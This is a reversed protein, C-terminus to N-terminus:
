SKATTEFAGRRRDDSFGGGGDEEYEDVDDDDDYLSKTAFNTESFDEQGYVLYMIPRIAGAPMHNAEGRHVVKYDYMLVSGAEAIGKTFASGPLKTPLGHELLFEQRDLHTGSWFTTFGTTEDLDILPIFCCVAHYPELAAPGDAHWQQTSTCNGGTSVVVGMRHLKFNSPLISALAPLWPADTTAYMKFADLSALSILDIDYRGKDRQMVEKFKVIPMGSVASLVDNVHSLVAARTQALIQEPVSQELPLAFHGHTEFSPPAAMDLLPIPCLHPLPYVTLICGAPRALAAIAACLTDLSDPSITSTIELVFEATGLALKTRISSFQSAEGPSSKQV